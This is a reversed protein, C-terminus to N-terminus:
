QCYFFFFVPNLTQHWKALVSVVFYSETTEPCVMQSSIQYKQGDLPTFVIFPPKKFFWHLQSLSSSEYFCFVYKVNNLWADADVHVSGPVSTERERKRRVTFLTLVACFYKLTFPSYFKCANTKHTYDFTGVIRQETLSTLLKLATASPVLM